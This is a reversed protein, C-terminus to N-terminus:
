PNQCSGENWIHCALGYLKGIVGLEEALDLPKLKRNKARIKLDLGSRYYYERYLKNWCEQHKGGAKVAEGRMKEVLISRMTRPKPTYEPAPLALLRRAAEREREEIANVKAEVAELEKLRIALNDFGAVRQELLVLRDEHEVIVQAQALLQRATSRPVVPPPTQVQLSDKCTQGGLFHDRLVKVCERKYLILKRRVEENKVRNIQISGLWFPLVELDLMFTEKAGGQKHTMLIFQHGGEFTPDQQVKKIQESLGKIGMNQCLKKLSVWVRKNIEVAEISQGQFEVSVPQIIEQNERTM